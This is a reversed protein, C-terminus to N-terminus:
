MKYHGATKLQITLAESQQGNVVACISVTYKTDPELNPIDIDCVDRLITQETGQVKVKFSHPANDMERPSRWTIKASTTTVSVVKPKEPRPVPTHFTTSSPLSKGGHQLLTFVKVTYESGPYLGKIRTSCSDTRGTQPYTEEGLRQYCILFSPQPQKVQCQWKLDASTATVSVVKLNDPGPVARISRKAVKSQFGNQLAVSVGVTYNVDLELNTFCHETSTTTITYLCSQDEGDVSLSVVYAAKDLEEPRRWSVKASTEHMEVKLGLPAPIETYASASVCESQQGDETITFVTFKFKKGPSLYSFRTQSGTVVESGQIEEGKCTVRFKQPGDLGEAPGWLLAISDSKISTFQIPGPPPASCHTTKMSQMKKTTEAHDLSREQSDESVTNGVSGSNGNESISPLCEMSESDNKVECIQKNSPKEEQPETPRKNTSPGELHLETLSNVLASGREETDHTGQPIPGPPPFAAEKKTTTRLLECPKSMGIGGDTCMKIYYTTNQKLNKLSFTYVEKRTEKKQWDSGNEQQFEIIYQKVPEHQEPNLWELTISDTKVETVKVNTPPSFAKTKFPVADSSVAYGLKGVATARIDYETDPKLGSLTVKKQVPHSTWENDQEEQDKKMRFEVRYEVTASDPDSLGVTLRDYSVDSTTPTAPKSPPIFPVPEVCEDEYIFICAGPYREDYKSTVTFKTDDSSTWKTLQNFLHLQRKMRQRTDTSLSDRTTTQLDDAYEGVMGAPKLFNSLKTLFSEPQDVSTFSFSVTNKIHLDCLLDDLNDDMKAGLEELQRLFSKLTCSEKEKKTVWQDLDKRNFPSMEHTKLIDELASEEKGGGRISPLVTGLKQMFEQKYLHCNRIFTQLKENMASFTTAATDKLLDNCRMETKNLHEIIDSSCTILRNSIHRQLRAAKSDLKVLPYLWVRVPIADEGNEGLMKPLQQYVNVAESFSTPNSSLKFDGHFTCSFNEVASKQKEDMTFSAGAEATLSRMMLKAEVDINKKKDSLSSERDFVFYASAGYLIATVVHTATDDEFVNPHSVQGRGLHSMTLTEFKTTTKYQLTLREQQLSKQRDQFYKASGGVNILGGLLSLKLSGSIKLSNSKEDISDSTTVNFESHEQKREVTNKQLESHDWLTIGPILTDKRCDYLMGLGFPRGLAATEITDESSTAM